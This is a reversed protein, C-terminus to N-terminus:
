ESVETITVGHKAATEILAKAGKEPVKVGRRDISLTGGEDTEFTYSTCWFPKEVRLHVHPKQRQPAEPMGDDTAKHEDTM